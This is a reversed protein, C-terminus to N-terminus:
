RVTIDLFNDCPFNKCKSEIMISFQISDTSYSDLSTFFIHRFSPPLPTYIHM